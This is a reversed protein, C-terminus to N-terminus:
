SGNRPATAWTSLTGFRRFSTPASGNMSTTWCIVLGKFRFYINEFRSILGKFRLYLL